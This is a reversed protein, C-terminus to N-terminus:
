VGHMEVSCSKANLSPATQVQVVEVLHYRQKIQTTYKM